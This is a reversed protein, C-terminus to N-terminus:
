RQASASFSDPSFSCLRQGVKLECGDDYKKAQTRNGTCILSQLSGYLQRDTTEARWQARYRKLTYSTVTVGTESTLEGHTASL